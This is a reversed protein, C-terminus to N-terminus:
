YESSTKQQGMPWCSAYMCRNMLKIIWGVFYPKFLHSKLETLSSLQATGVYWTARLVVHQMHYASLTNCMIQVRNCRPWKLTRTPSLRSCQSSITFYDRIIGKFAIIMIIIKCISPKWGSHHIEVIYWQLSVGNQDFIRSIYVHMIHSNVPLHCVETNISSGSCDTDRVQTKCPGSSDQSTWGLWFCPLCILKSQGCQWGCM